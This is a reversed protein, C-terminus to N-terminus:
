KAQTTQIHKERGRSVVKTFFWRRAYSERHNGRFERIAGSPCNFSDNINNISSAEGIINLNKMVGNEWLILYKTVTDQSYGVIQSFDNISTAATWKGGLSGLDTVDFRTDASAFNSIFIGLLVTIILKKKM